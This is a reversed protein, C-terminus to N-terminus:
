CIEFMFISFAIIIEAGHKVKNEVLLKNVRTDDKFTYPRSPVFLGPCVQKITTKGLIIM